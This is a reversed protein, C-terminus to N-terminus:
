AAARRAFFRALRVAKVPGTFRRAFNYVSLRIIPVSTGPTNDVM